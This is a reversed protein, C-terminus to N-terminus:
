SELELPEETTFLNKLFRAKIFIFDSDGEAYLYGDPTKYVSIGQESDYNLVDKYLLDFSDIDVKGIFLNSNPFLEPYRKVLNITSFGLEFLNEANNQFTMLVEKEIKPILSDFVKEYHRLVRSFYESKSLEEFFSVRRKKIWVSVLYNGSDNIKVNNHKRYAQEVINFLNNKSTNSENCFDEFYYACNYDAFQLKFPVLLQSNRFTLKAFSRNENDPKQILEITATDSLEKILANIIKKM